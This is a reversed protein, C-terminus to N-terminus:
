VSPPAIPQIQVSEVSCCIFLTLRLRLLQLLPNRVLKVKASAWVLIAQASPLPPQGAYGLALALACPNQACCTTSHKSNSAPETVATPALGPNGLNRCSGPSQRPYSEQITGM